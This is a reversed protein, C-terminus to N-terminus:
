DPPQLEWALSAPKGDAPLLEVAHRGPEVEGLDRVEADPLHLKGKALDIEQGFIEVGLMQEIAIGKGPMLRPLAEASGVMSAKEWKVPMRRDRICAATLSIVRVEAETIEKPVSIEVGAWDEISVVDELLALLAKTREDIEDPETPHRFIRRGDEGSRFSLEGKGLLAVLFRLAKVQDRAPSSDLAHRWNVQMEGHDGRWALMVQVVLGGFSGEFAIDWEEPPEDSAVLTLDLAENGTTTTAKMELHWPPINPKLDISGAIPKGVHERFAPPLQEFTVVAGQSISVRRGRAVAAHFLEAAREGEKDDTFGVRVQPAFERAAIEDRPVADIRVTNGGETASFSLMSGSPGFESWRM